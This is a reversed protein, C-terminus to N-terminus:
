LKSSQPQLGRKAPTLGKAKDRLTRRLIKGSPNKPIANIFVVGAELWKYKVKGDSVFQAIEKKIVLKDKGSKKAEESLAVFALPLEGSFKNPFGIVGADDIWPHDLLFGELEAPAVQFGRVKILEKLRDVIFIDGARNIIVEDGTRLWGDVYTEKTSDMANNVFAAADGKYQLTLQPGRVVLKGPKNYGALTGDPKVLKATTNQPLRGASGAIGGPGPAHELPIMTVIASTETMGSTDPMYPVYMAEFVSLLGYAQGFHLNPLLRKFQNSLEASVPAAGVLAFHCHSLDFQKTAPHKCFLVVQPPVLILHTICYKVISKLMDVFNFRPIVVLPLGAFLGFHTVFVLGYIHFMPLVGLNVDGKRYRAQELPLTPDNLRVFAASQIVDAIVGHHSVAVAKPRGTTGSSFSYFAVKTKNEGPDLKKEKFNERSALGENILQEINLVGYTGESLEKCPTLLTVIQSKELGVEEAAELATKVNLPHAFLLKPKTAELQYILEDKTYAPNAFSVILSLRHAGWVVTM